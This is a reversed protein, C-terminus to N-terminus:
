SFFFSLFFNNNFNMISDLSYFPFSSVTPLVNPGGRKSSQGTLLSSSSTPTNGADTPSKQKDSATWPSLSRLLILAEDLNMNCSRLAAEAEEKKCGQETLIRFQKSAWIMEKTLPKQKPGSWSSTDIQGDSWSPNSRQGRQGWYSSSSPSSPSTDHSSHHSSSDAWNRGRNEGSEGWRENWQRDPQQKNDRWENSPPKNPLRIMGPSSPLLGSGNPSSVSQSVPANIIGNNASSNNTMNNPKANIQQLQESEDAWKRVKLQQQQRVPNGWVSTGDDSASGNADGNMTEEDWGSASDKKWSSSPVKSAAQMADSRWGSAPVPQQQEPPPLPPRQQRDWSNGAWDRRNDEEVKAPHEGWSTSSAEIVTENIKSAQNGGWSGNSANSHSSVSQSSSGGNTQPVGTWHASSTDEEEGWTGGINSVPAHNWQSSSANSHMVSTSPPPPVLSSSVATSMSSSLGSSAQKSQQKQRVSSEWLETGTKSDPGSSVSVWLMEREKSVEKSGM